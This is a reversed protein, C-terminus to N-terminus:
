ILNDKQGGGLVIPKLREFLLAHRPVLLIFGGANLKAYGVGTHHAITLRWRDGDARTEKPDACERM